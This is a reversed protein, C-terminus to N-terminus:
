SGVRLVVEATQHKQVIVFQDPSIQKKTILGIEVVPARKCLEDINNQCVDSWTKYSDRM